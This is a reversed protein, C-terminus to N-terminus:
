KFLCSLKVAGPFYMTTNRACRTNSVPSKNMKNKLGDSCVGSGGLPKKYWSIVYESECM